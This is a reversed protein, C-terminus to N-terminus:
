IFDADLEQRTILVAEQFALNKYAGALNRARNEDDTLLEIIITPETVPANDQEWRGTAEIITHGHPFYDCALGLATERLQETTLLGRADLGCYIRFLKM